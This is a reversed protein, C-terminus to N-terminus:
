KGCRSLRLVPRTVVFPSWHNSLPQERSDAATVACMSCPTIWRWRLFISASALPSQRGRNSSALLWLMMGKQGVSRTQSPKLLNLISNNKLLYCNNDKFETGNMSIVLLYSRKILYMKIIM